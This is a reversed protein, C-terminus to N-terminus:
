FMKKLMLAYAVKQKDSNWFQEFTFQLSLDPTFRKSQIWKISNYPRSFQQTTYIRQYQVVSKMDYKENAILGFSPAIHASVGHQFYDVGVLGLASISLNPMVQNTFGAGGEIMTAHQEKLQYDVHPEYSMSFKGSIGGTLVDYPIFSTMSYLKLYDLKLKKEQTLYKLGINGLLLEHESASQSNDDELKQAAPLYDLRIDYQHNDYGSGVSFQSDDPARLPSKYQSLDISFDKVLPKSQEFQANFEIQSAAVKGQDISYDRYHTAVQYIVFREEPSQTSEILQKLTHHDVATKLEKQWSPSYSDSLM